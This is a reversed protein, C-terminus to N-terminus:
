IDKSTPLDPLGSVKLGLTKRGTDSVRSPLKQEIPAAVRPSCGLELLLLIVVRGRRRARPVKAVAAVNRVAEVSAGDSALASASASGGILEAAGPM